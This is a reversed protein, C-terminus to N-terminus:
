ANGRGNMKFEGLVHGSGGCHTCKHTPENIYSMLEDLYSRVNDVLEDLSDAAFGEIPVYGRYNEGKHTMAFVEVQEHKVTKSRIRPRRYSKGKATKEEWKHIYPQIAVKKKVTFCFKYDSTVVAYKSNVNDNVHKRIINYAQTSSISCPRHHLMFEPVLMRDLEDFCAVSSLDVEKVGQHTWQQNKYVSISMDKFKGPNKIEINGLFETEFEQDEEHEAIENYVRDYLSRLDSYNEWVYEEDGWTEGVEEMTLELPIRDNHLSEDKLKFGTNIKKAPRIGVVKKIEDSGKLFMWSKSFTPEGTKGNYLFGNFGYTQASSQFYVGDPGTYYKIKIVIGRGDIGTAALRDSGPRCRGSRWTLM